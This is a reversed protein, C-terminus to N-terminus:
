SRGAAAAVVLDRLAIPGAMKDLCDDFGSRRALARTPGDLAMGSLMVLYISPGSRERILQALRYGNTGPLHIDILVVDPPEDRLASLAQEADAAERVTYGLAVLADRYARRVQVSDDVLLIRSARGSGDTRATPPSEELVAGHEAAAQAEAARFRMVLEFEHENRKALDLGGGQLEMFQRATRLALGGGEGPLARADGQCRIRIQPESSRAARVEIVSQPVVAILLARLVALLVQASRPADACVSAPGADAAFSCRRLERQSLEERTGQLIDAMAVARVSPQLTGNECQEALVFADLIALTRHLGRDVKEVLMRSAEADFGRLRTLDASSALPSLADRLEHALQRLLSREQEPSSDASDLM